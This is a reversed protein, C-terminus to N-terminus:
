GAIRAHKAYKILGLFIISGTEFIALYTSVQCGFSHSNLTEDQMQMCTFVCLFREYTGISVHVHTHIFSVCVCVCVCVCWLNSLM